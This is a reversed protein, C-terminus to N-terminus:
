GSVVKELIKGIYELRQENQFYVNHANFDPLEVQWEKKIDKFLTSPPAIVFSSLSVAKDAERIQKEIETKITKYFQIKPSDLRKMELRLGHPDIFAIYQHDGEVIWLIFDPYFNNAQFFGIGKKSMNRLLYLKRNKFFDVNNNFYYSKLDEIFRKEGDNLAVPSIKIIEKLAKKKSDSTIYLLPKYLHSGFSFASVKDNDIHLQEFAEIKAADYGEEEKKYGFIETLENIKHIIDKENQKVEIWYQWDNFNPHNKDLIITELHKSEYESKKWNYYRQCYSKLLSTAIHQITSLEEFRSIQLTTKPIALQYWSSDALINQLEKKDISINKWQRERTYKQVDYFISDWDLFATHIPKLDEYNQDDVNATAENSTRDIMQIKPYWNLQVPPNNWLDELRLQIKVHKEFEQGEKVQIIKLKAKELEVVPFTYIKREEWESTPVGENELYAKFKQMYNARIGFVNLTELTSIYTPIVEASRQEKDLEKSRKLSFNYGKLRVGRGFLQIIQSGEGTGINMLGMTSVRWSSWGETFKKAGILVNISSGKDNISQFLSDSFSKEATHLKAKECIKYLGRDDGVNIVGFYRETDGVRLGLEGDAGGLNDVFVNAGSVNTNFVKSLIDQYVAAGSVKKDKLYTFKNRFISVRQENLLGDTGDLIQQIIQQSATNEKIFKAFFQIIQVVDAAEKTSVSKTVSGGVFVWLPNEIHFEKASLEHRAYICKQEYFALLCGVMYRHLFDDSMSQSLNLLRFDKGYGDKYFYKYSYDFIIAKGYENILEEKDKSKAASVAQGFTASYEFAFGNASLVDRRQKWQEGSIGRHGEDILVLNNTEFAEVAVTDVGSTEALKSIEIVEIESLSTGGKRFLEATINSEKFEKLHQESLGSNPTILLVKEVSKSKYKKAYHRYQLLNVHMLLTKGSGTANWYVLKNLDEVQFESIEIGLDINERHFIKLYENLDDCLQERNSFYRDLYIETFLLALYQFYKWHIKQERNDSISLTHSVINQDYEQLLSRDIKASRSLTNQLHISYRTTNDENYGEFVSSKLGRTLTEFDMPKDHIDGAGFLHLLYRNLVLAKDLQLTKKQRKAM